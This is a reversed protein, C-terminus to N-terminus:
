AIYKQAFPQVFCRSVATIQGDPPARLWLEYSPNLEERFGDRLNKGRGALQVTHRIACSVVTPQVPQLHHTESREVWGVATLDNIEPRDARASGVSSM